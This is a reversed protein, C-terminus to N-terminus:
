KTGSTEPAPAPKTPATGSTEPAPATGAGNKADASPRISDVILQLIRDATAKKAAPLWVKEGYAFSAQTEM